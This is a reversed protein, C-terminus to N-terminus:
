CKICELTGCEVLVRGGTCFGIESLYTSKETTTVTWEYIMVGFEDFSLALVDFKSVQSFVFGASQPGKYDACGEFNAYLDDIKIELSRSEPQWLLKTIEADHLGGLSKIFQAIDQM